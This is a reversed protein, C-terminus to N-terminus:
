VILPDYRASDQERYAGDYLTVTAGLALPNGQADRIAVQLAWYGVAHSHCRSLRATWPGFGGQM